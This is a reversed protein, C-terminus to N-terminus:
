LNRDFVWYLSSAERGEVGYSDEENVMEGSGADGFSLRLSGWETPHDPRYDNM